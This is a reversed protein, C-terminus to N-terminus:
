ISHYWPLTILHPYFDGVGKQRWQSNNRVQKMIVKLYRFKFRVFIGLLDAIIVGGCVNIEGLESTFVM